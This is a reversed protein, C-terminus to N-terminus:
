LHNDRPDEESVKIANPDIIVRDPAEVRVPAKSVKQAQTLPVPANSVSSDKAHYLGISTFVMFLTASISTAQDLPVKAGVLIFELGTPGVIALIASLGTKWSPGLVKILANM